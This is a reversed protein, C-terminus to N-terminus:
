IHVDTNAKVYEAVWSVLESIPIMRGESEHRLKVEAANEKLSRKSIVIRVPIGILDADKFKVGPRSDRDDILVEVGQLDLQQAIDESMSHIEDEGIPIVIAHYPAVNIPWIIGDSDHHQEVISAALRGVGIGYSGMIMIQQQGNEDLYTAGMSGSYKTGLKFINGVEIGRVISVTSSCNVCIDGEEVAAIDRVIDAEFDRGLNVNRLHYGEKNAGAVLNRSTALADDAVIKIGKIGVPSVYGPTLNASRAEEETALRLDEDRLANKLKRENIQMDGRIAVLVIEGKSIYIMTKMTEEPKVGLFAAVQGIEKQNPTAVEAIPRLDQDQNVAQKVKRAVELNAAYGCEPCLILTDEGSETVCMFEHAGRGGMMGTDSEVMVVDLGAREFIRHYANAMREYYRDFDEWNTHFSYADKMVFERVRILGGRPRPEDRFKTQLQYVMLPLQRYSEVESRVVATIVEEHTMGLVMDRGGRDKFRVLEPGVDQYRGSEQWISAPHVVPMNIEQGDIADMEERIIQEIKRLTRWLLPMYTYLGSALKKMMGARVMLQHSILEADAPAERLTRGFLKSMRM